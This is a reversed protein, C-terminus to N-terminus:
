AGGIEFHPINKYMGVTTIRYVNDHTSNMQQFLGGRIEDDDIPNGSFDGLVFFDEGETFTITKEYQDNTQADWEKPEKYEMDGIVKKGDQIKYKIHLKAADANQLGTKQINSGKDVNLYCKSIVHPYWTATGLQKSRYLNFVTVTDNYM